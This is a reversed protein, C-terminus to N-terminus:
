IKVEIKQPKWSGIQRSRMNKLYTKKWGKLNGICSPTFGSLWSEGHPSVRFRWRFTMRLLHACFFRIKSSYHSGVGTIHPNYSVM